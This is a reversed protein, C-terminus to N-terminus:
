QATSVQEIEDIYDEEEYEEDDEDRMVKGVLLVFLGVLVSIAGFILASQNFSKTLVDVVCKVFTSTSAFMPKFLFGAIGVCLGAIMLAWGIMKHAFGNCSAVTIVLMLTLLIVICVLAMTSFLVSTIHTYDAMGQRSLNESSLEKIADSKVAYRGFDNCASEGLEIGTVLKIYSVNELMVDSIDAASVGKLPNAYVYFSLVDHAVDAVFEPYSSKTVAQKIDAYTVTIMSNDRLIDAISARSSSGKMNLKGPHKIKGVVFTEPENTRIASEVSYASTNMKVLLSTLTTATVILLLVFLFVTRTVFVFKRLAKIRKKSKKTKRKGKKANAKEIKAMEKEKNYKPIMIPEPAFESIFEKESDQQTNEAATETDATKEGNENETESENNVNEIIEESNIETKSENENNM